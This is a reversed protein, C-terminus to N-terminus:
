QANNEGAHVFSVETGAGVRLTVDDREQVIQGDRMLTVTYTGVPLSGIVYRGSDDVTASRIIGSASEVQIVDGSGGDVHGFVSGTTAQGHAVGTLGICLSIATVLATHRLATGAALGSKKRWNRHMITVEGLPNARLPGPNHPRFSCSSDRGVHCSEKFS